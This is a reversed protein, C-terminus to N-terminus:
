KKRGSNKIYYKLTYVFVIASILFLVTIIIHDKVYLVADGFYPISFVKKGIIREASIPAVDNGANADGKTIFFTGKIENVHDLIDVVRHTLSVKGDRDPSFTIIDGVKIDQIDIKQVIILDGKNFGGKLGSGPQQTMSPTLVSYFRYGFYSKGPQNSFTFIAASLVISVCMVYFLISFIISLSKKGKGSLSTGTKKLNFAIKPKSEREEPFEKPISDYDVPM